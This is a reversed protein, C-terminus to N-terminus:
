SQKEEQGEDLNHTHKRNMSTKNVQKIKKEFCYFSPKKIQLDSEPTNTIFNISIQDGLIRRGLSNEFCFM